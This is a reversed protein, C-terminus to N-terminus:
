TKGKIFYKAVPHDLKNYISTHFTYKGPLRYVLCNKVWKYEFHRNLLDLYLNRIYNNM